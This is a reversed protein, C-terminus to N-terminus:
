QVDISDLTIAQVSEGDTYWFKCPPSARGQRTQPAADQVQLYWGRQQLTTNIVTGAAANTEAIQAQSLTVGARIVGNNLAQNIPDACAAEILSYGFDNYPISNVQTLLNMLALQFQNNLWIQNIYSDAWEFPGSVTGRALFIFNQNATANVGYYNYGNGFNGAVQPNGGLNTAVAANTVSAVLGSQSKFDLTIRGNTATFDISAVLGCVFAALNQDSPEWILFTGSLDTQQLQYGFCTTAPVTVTPSVDTDFCVYMFRDNQGNNWAAFALKQNYGSGGDPDFATMFTVWNQTLQTLGTMFAGPIAAAAGQSLVAGTAATLLLPTALSGTAYASTSAAGTIGSAIIISGSVSDFSAVVGVPTATLTESAVTQTPSVIYTGTLGTGTGLGTIQTGATVGTGTLAQGISLTGSAVASVTLTGYTAAITTSPTTQAVTLAYTGIGGTTGSLQATIQTGATIGTGAIIAGPVLTGSAVATVVLLDAFISGTVSATGPAIAGTVTAVTPESGNLGAQILAAASSYSTAGSLNLSSATHTYGDMVVTLTGTMAQIQALTYTSVNGSRLYAPVAEQPYQAFLIENPKQTSNDFGAFYVAALATLPSSPGFFNAVSVGDNPFAAVTGIPVRTNTTLVMGNLALPNGGANLVSPIVNVTLSAPVTSM